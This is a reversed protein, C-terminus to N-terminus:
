PLHLPVSCKLVTSEKNNLCIVCETGPTVAGPTIKEMNEKAKKDLLLRCENIYYYFSRFKEITLMRVVLISKDKGLITPRDVVEFKLEEQM